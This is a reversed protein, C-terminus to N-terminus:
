GGDSVRYQQILSESMTWFEGSSGKFFNPGHRLGLTASREKLGALSLLSPLRKFLWSGNIKRLSM